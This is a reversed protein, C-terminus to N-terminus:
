VFNRFIWFLYAFYLVIVLGGIIAGIWASKFPYFIGGGILPGSLFFFVESWDNIFILPPNYTCYLCALGIAILATSVLLDTVSFRPM